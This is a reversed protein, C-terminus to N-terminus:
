ACFKENQLYHIPLRVGNECMGHRVNDVVAGSQKAKASDYDCNTGPFVPIYVIPREVKGGPYRMTKVSRRAKAAEIKEAAPCIPTAAEATQAYIKSHRSLYISELESLSMSNARMVAETECLWGSPMLPACAM